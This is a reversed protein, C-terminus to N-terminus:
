PKIQCLQAISCDHYHLEEAMKSVDQTMIVETLEEMTKAACFEHYRIDRRADIYAKYSDTSM